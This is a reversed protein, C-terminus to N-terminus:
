PLKPPVITNPLYSDFQEAAPIMTCIRPFNTSKVENRRSLKRRNWKGKGSYDGHM